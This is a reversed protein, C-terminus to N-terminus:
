VRILYVDLGHIVNCLYTAFFRIILKGFHNEVRRSYRYLRQSDFLPKFPNIVFAIKEIKFRAKSYYARDQGRWTTPDYFEFVEESFLREHTPDGWAEFSNWYPVGLFIKAGPKTIRYIEEMTRTTDRLHELVNDAFVEDFQGDEFPWPFTRLDHVVDVGPLEAIDHNLWGDKIVHGCGLHLKTKLNM